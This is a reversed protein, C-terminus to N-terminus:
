DCAGRRRDRARDSNRGCPPRLAPLEARRRTTRHPLPPPRTMLSSRQLRTTPRPRPPPLQTSPALQPPDTLPTGTHSSSSPRLVGSTTDFSTFLHPLLEHSIAAEEASGLPELNEQAVYRVGRPGGLLATCDDHSPVMRYFPQEAGSPLGLVGDWHSVDLHPRHDWGFVVARFGFKRHRLVQGIHFEIGERSRKAQRESLNSMLYDEVKGIHRMARYVASLATM